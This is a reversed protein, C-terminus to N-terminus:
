DTTYEFSVHDVKSLYQYQHTILLRTKGKLFEVICDSFLQQGVHCDVASLPDDFLFIDANRYVARALNIRAQQGSFIKYNIVFNKYCFYEFFFFM